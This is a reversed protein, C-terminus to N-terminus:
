RGFPSLQAPLVEEEGPQGEARYATQLDEPPDQRVEVTPAQGAGTGVYTM